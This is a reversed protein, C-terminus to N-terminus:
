WRAWDAGSPACRTLSRLSLVARHHGCKKRDCVFTRPRVYASYRKPPTCRYDQCDLPVNAPVIVRARRLVDGIRPNISFLTKARYMQNSLRGRLAAMWDPREQVEVYFACFHGCNAPKKCVMRFWLSPRNRTKAARNEFEEERANEYNRTTNGVHRPEAISRVRRM